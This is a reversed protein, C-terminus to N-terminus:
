YVRQGFAEAERWNSDVARLEKSYWGVPFQQSDPFVLGIKGVLAEKVEALAFQM